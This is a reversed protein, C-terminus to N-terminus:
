SYILMMDFMVRRGVGAAAGAALGISSAAKALNMAPAGSAVGATVAAGGAAGAWGRLIAPLCAWIVKASGGSSSSLTSLM